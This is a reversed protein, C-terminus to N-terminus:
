KRIYNTSVLDQKIVGIPIVVKQVNLYAPAILGSAFVLVLKGQENIYFNDKIDHAKIKFNAQTQKNVFDALLKQYHNNKFLMALTLVLGHKLDIVTYKDEVLSDAATKTIRRKLVVLKQDQYVKSFSQQVTRYKTDQKFETYLQRGENAYQTNLKNALKQNDIQAVLPVQIDAWSTKDVHKYERVLVLSVLDKLGSIRNTANVFQYSTNVAIVFSVVIIAVGITIERWGFWQRTKKAITQNIREKLAFEPIDQSKYRAKMEEIKM